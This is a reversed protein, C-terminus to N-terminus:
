KSRDREIRQMTLANETTVGQGNMCKRFRPTVYVWEGSRGLEGTDPYYAYTHSWNMNEDNDTVEVRYFLSSSSALIAHPSSSSKFDAMESSPGSAQGRFGVICLGNPRSAYVAVYTARAIVVPLKRQKDFHRWPWVGFMGMLLVIYAFACVSILCLSVVVIRQTM